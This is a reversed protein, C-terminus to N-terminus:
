RHSAQFGPPRQARNPGWPPNGPSSTSMVTKSQNALQSLNAAIRGAWFRSGQQNAEAMAQNLTDQVQQHQEADDSQALLQAKVRLLEPRFWLEQRATTIALTQEVTEVALQVLGLRALGQAYESRVLCYLPSGGLLQLQDLAESLGRVGEEVQGDRVALILEFCRIFLRWVPMDYQAQSGKLRQLLERSRKEHGVLLTVPIASLSLTYWLSAPHHLTSAADVNGEITLLAQGVQGQLLEIQAKLSRAAISQDFHSDIVHPLAVQPFSLAENIAQRAQSLEGMHFLPTARMRRGLLRRELNCTRDSLQIYQDALALAEHHQNSCCHDHWLGWLGRLEHEHDSLMRADEVVHQWAERIVQGAGRTLAMVSASLTLLQMRQRTSATAFHLGNDVWSHCEDILSLRLWLPVSALVLEVGLTPDGQAGFCWDLAARVCDVDDRHQALWTPPTMRELNLKARRQEGLTHAAHRQALSRAQQPDLKQAAYQRTTHTLRYRKVPSASAAVLLSKDLLSELLWASDHFQGPCVDVVAKASALTFAGTFISLQQLMAQEQTSLRAYSWDLSAELTRHRASSTRRNAMQLRMNGDLLEVLYSLGFARVHSAAIEIALPNGDLKRCIAQAAPIDAATFIFSSDLAAAREVLLRVAPASQLSTALPSEDADLGACLPAVDHVFEGELHLAERSTLLLHCTPVLRLLAEVTSATDELAHDCNDLVLLHRGHGLCAALAALPQDSPEIGLADALQQPVSRTRNTLDVFTRGQLFDPELTNTLALALSSKGVGGSGILTLLRRKRVEEALSQLASECGLLSNSLSPLEAEARGPLAPVVSTERLTVPAVFRYGRGPVTVIHTFDGEDGLVRRLTTMQARLNCEEVVVKPWVLALLENKELLEGNRSALTVLLQLARSGLHVPEGHKFLLHQQPFLVFPGFCLANEPDPADLADHTVVKGPSIRNLPM